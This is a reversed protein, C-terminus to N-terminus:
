RFDCDHRPIGDSDFSILLPSLVPDSIHSSATHTPDLACIDETGGHPAPSLLGRCPYGGRLIATGLQPKM